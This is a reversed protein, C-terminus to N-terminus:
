FSRVNRIYDKNLKRLYKVADVRDSVEEFSFGLKYEFTANNTITGVPKAKFKSAFKTELWKKLAVIEKQANFSPRTNKTLYDGISVDIAIELQELILKLKM